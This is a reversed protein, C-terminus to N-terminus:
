RKSRRERLKQRIRSNASDRHVEEYERASEEIESDFFEKHDLYYSIANQIQAKTLFPHQKQIEAVNNGWRLVIWPSIGSKLTPGLLSPSVRTTLPSALM